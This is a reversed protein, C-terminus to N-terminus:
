NFSIKYFEHALAYATLELRHLNLDVRTSLERAKAMLRVSLRTPTRGSQETGLWDGAGRLECDREAISLGDKEQVLTELRIIDDGSKASYLFCYAIHGDRGIRGRLQHLTALGFRDADFIAMLSANPVDIGVEIVTTSVLIQLKGESFDTLTKQKDAAKQKGHLLGVSVEEGYAKVIDKYLKDASSGDIGEVDFIKPAVIYAQRGEEKCVRVIYDLMEKRKKPTVVATKVNDSDYRRDINLINIDGFVTLRLSRPIPTASLTLTDVARGKDMLSTRQAVGFRHQEDICAFSLNKFKVGKSIVAHTGIVIDVLGLHIREQMKQKEKASMSGTLLEVQIGFPALIKKFNNYHQVALIETPTMVASQYRSAAAYACALLAVITKGSGVDGVLIANLPKKSHIDKIIARVAEQQTPTLTYPLSRIIQGLFARKDQYFITRETENRILKYACIEKVLSEVEIRDAGLNAQEITKPAHAYEIATRLPLVDGSDPILSFDTVGKDLVDQVMTAFTAQPILGRLPYIAKIGRHINLGDAVSEYSPNILECVNGEKKLKGYCRVVAGQTVVKAVYNANYWVLKVQRPYEEVTGSARFLQLRGKKIPRSASTIKLVLVVFDGNDAVSLDSNADLDIYRSPLFRLLERQSYIGLYNLKELTVPGVGKVKLLEKADM